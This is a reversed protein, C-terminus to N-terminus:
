PREAGGALVWDITRDIGEALPVAPRWGTASSLRGIDAVFDRLEIPSQDAPPAVHTVPAPRGTRAGVRAAVLRMAEALSTGLGSGVLFHRGNVADPAAAAALFARAADEIFVYDRLPKGDGYITLPEGRLARRIMLNLVGRDASSSGPGPGYVNALRLTAGRVFGRRVYHELYGEAMSKHVDYVTIPADPVEEGVPVRATLGVQTASGAFLVFPRLAGRRCCELIRLLPLVNARLDEEPDQEAVRASTQAALHFVLDVGELLPAWDAVERVDCAVEEV